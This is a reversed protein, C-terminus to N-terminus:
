GNVLSVAQSDGPSATVMHSSLLQVVESYTIKNNSYPDIESLLYDIEAEDDIVKM